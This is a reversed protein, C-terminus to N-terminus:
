LENTKEKLATLVEPYIKHKGKFPIFQFSIGNEELFRLHKNIEEENTFEDEDGCLLWTKTVSFAESYESFNLDPPFVSAWLVLHVAKIEKKVLWRCVTAGGQSFGLVIIKVNKSLESIVEKYVTNLYKVNDNIDNLRDEKTMWSAGVRGSFGDTYFRHLGECSVILTKSDAISSFNRIFYNGLQGYGHCVFWVEEIGKHISGSLFYRATKETVIHQQIFEM